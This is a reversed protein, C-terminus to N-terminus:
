AAPTITRLRRRVFGIGALATGVMVLTAPEPINEAIYFNSDWPEQDPQGSVYTFLIAGNGYGIFSAEAPFDPPFYNTDGLGGNGDSVYFDMYITPGLITDATFRLGYTCAVSINDCTSGSSPAAVDGAVVANPLTFRLNTTSPDAPPSGLLGVQGYVPDGYFGTSPDLTPDYLWQQYSYAGNQNFTITFNTSFCGTTDGHQVCGPPSDPETDAHAAPLATLALLGAIISFGLLRVDQRTKISIASKGALKPQACSDLQNRTDLITVLDICTDVV